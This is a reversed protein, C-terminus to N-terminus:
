RSLAESCFSCQKQCWAFCLSVETEEGAKEWSGPEEKWFISYKTVILDGTQKGQLRRSEVERDWQLVWGLTPVGELKARGLQEKYTGLPCQFHGLCVPAAEWLVHVM